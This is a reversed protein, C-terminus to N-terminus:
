SLNLLYLRGEPGLNLLLDLSSLHPQYGHRKEFVQWYRPPQPLNNLYSPEILEPHFDGVVSSLPPIDFGWITCLLSLWQHNYTTLRPEPNRLLQEICDCYHEWYPSSQYSSRLLQWLKHRWDGHESILIDSTLPSPYGIKQVPITFSERGNATLLETRNRYSQKTYQEGVYIAEVEGQAILRLYHTNPLFSTPLSIM